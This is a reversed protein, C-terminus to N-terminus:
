SKNKPPLKPLRQWGTAQSRWLFLSTVAHIMGESIYVFFTRAPDNQNILVVSNPQFSDFELLWICIGWCCKGGCGRSERQCTHFTCCRLTASLICYINIYVYFSFCVCLFKDPATRTNICRTVCVAIEHCLSPTRGTFIFGADIRAEMWFLPFSLPCLGWVSVCVGQGADSSVAGPSEAGLAETTEPTQAQKPSGGEGRQGWHQPACSPAVAQSCRWHLTWCVCPLLCTFFHAAAFPIIAILTSTCGSSQAATALFWQHSETDGHLLKQRKDWSERRWNEREAKMTKKARSDLGYMLFTYASLLILAYKLLM